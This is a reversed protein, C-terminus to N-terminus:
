NLGKSIFNKYHETNHLNVKLYEIRKKSESSTILNKEENPLHYYEETGNGYLVYKDNIGRVVFFSNKFKQGLAKLFMENQTFTPNLLEERFMYILETNNNEYKLERFLFESLQESLQSMSFLDTIKRPEIEKRYFILPVKIVEDYWTFIHGFANHEGVAQGHDSCIVLSTEAPIFDMFFQLQKDIYEVTEQYRIRYNDISYEGDGLNVYYRVASNLLISNAHYGCLHPVHAESIHILSFDNNKENLLDCLYYWFVLSIPLNIKGYERKKNRKLIAQETRNDSGFFDLVSYNKITYKKEFLGRLFSSNDLEFGYKIKEDRISTDIDGTFMSVVSTHTYTSTSYANTFSIAKEELAKLYPMDEQVDQYRLSDLILFAMDKNKRHQLCKKLNMLLQNLEILFKELKDCNEFQNNIYENIFKRAYVFDRINLYQKILELLYREKEAKSVGERYKSILINIGIKMGNHDYFPIQMKPLGEYLDIILTGSGLIMRIESSIEDAYAVSSIIVVSPKIIKLEEPAGITIGKISQGQLEVNNDVICYTKKTLEPIFSLLKRTHEGGGWVVLKQKDIYPIKSYNYFVINELYSLNNNINLSYKKLLNTIIDEFDAAQEVM